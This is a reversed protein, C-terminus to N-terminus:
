EIQDSMVSTKDLLAHDLNIKRNVIDQSSSDDIVSSSEELNNL